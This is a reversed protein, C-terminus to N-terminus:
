DLDYQKLRLAQALLLLLFRPYQRYRPWLRRPENLFRYLWELGSRQIWRPAQPKRGSLFDFAAGVGILAPVNLIDVHAAMWREQKPSSIGVWVVDPKAAQIHEIIRQEEEESIAGFPPSYCGVVLLGPYDAQLKSGLDEAVGPAGGYFYHKINHDPSMECLAQMLDPGYVRDVHKHGKLRLLWVLSMGDPTTLGSHNFIPRLSPDAVCDMISHAPAVCVYHPDHDAIWGQITELAQGMNIASVGVGLINSRMM